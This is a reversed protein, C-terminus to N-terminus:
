AAKVPQPADTCAAIPPATDSGAKIPQTTHEGAQAPRTADTGTNTLNGTEAAAERAIQACCDQVKQTLDLWSKAQLTAGELIAALVNSGATIVQDPQQCHVFAQLSGAVREGVSFLTDLQNGYAESQAKQLDAILAQLRKMQNDVNNNTNMGPVGWWTFLANLRDLGMTFNRDDAGM